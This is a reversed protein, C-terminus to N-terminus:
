KELMEKPIDAEQEDSMLHNSQKEEVIRVTPNNKICEDCYESHGSEYARIVKKTSVRRDCCDCFNTM